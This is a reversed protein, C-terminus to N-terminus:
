VILEVARKRETGDDEPEPTQRIKRKVKLKNGHDDELELILTMDSDRDPVTWTPNFARHGEHRLLWEFIANEEIVRPRLFAADDAKFGQDIEYKNEGKATDRLAIKLREIAAEFAAGLKEDSYKHGGTKSLEQEKKRLLKPVEIRYYEFVTVAIDYVHKQIRQRLSDVGKYEIGLTQWSGHQFFEREVQDRRRSSLPQKKEEETRNRLVHWKHKYRGDNVDGQCIRIIKQIDEDDELRDPKTFVGITRKGVKDHSRCLRLIKQDALDKTADAVALILSNGKAMERETWELVKDVYNQDKPVDQILGPLDLVQISLKKPAAIHITLTHEAWMRDESEVGPFILRAVEELIGIEGNVLTEKSREWTDWDYEKRWQRLSQVETPTAGASPEIGIVVVAIDESPEITVRTPYRTCVDKKSPFPIETIAELVSSKGASQSGCVIVQPLQPLQGSFDVGMNNLKNAQKTVNQVHQNQPDADLVSDGREAEKTTEHIRAPIKSSGNLRSDRRAPGVGSEISANASARMSVTDSSDSPQNIHTRDPVAEPLDESASISPSM